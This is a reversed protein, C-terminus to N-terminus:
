KNTVAPLNKRQFVEIFTPSTRQYNAADNDWKYVTEQFAPTLGDAIAIRTSNTRSFAYCWDALDLGAHDQPTWAFPACVFVIYDPNSAVLDRKFNDEIEFRASGPATMDYAYIYPTASRRHTYFFIEPESQLVAIRAGPECHTRLYEAIKRTQVFPNGVYRTAVITDPSNVFLYDWLSVITFLIAITVAVIPVFTLWQPAARTRLGKTMETVAFAVALAIAPVLMIFYHLYYYFGATVAAAGCLALCLVFLRKWLLIDRQVWIFLVAVPLVVAVICLRPPIVTWVGHLTPFMQSISRSHAAAYKVTWLWFLEFSGNLWMLLCVLAYPALWGIAYSLRLFPKGRQKALWVFFGFAMAGFAL